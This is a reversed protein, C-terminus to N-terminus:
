AVVIRPGDVLDFFAVITEQHPLRCSICFFNTDRFAAPSQWSYYRESSIVGDSQWKQSTHVLSVAGDSDDVKIRVKICPSRFDEAPRWCLLRADIVSCIEIM